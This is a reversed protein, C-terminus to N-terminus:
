AGVRTAEPAMATTPTFFCTREAAPLAFIPAAALTLCSPLRCRVRRQRPAPDDRGNEELSVSSAQRPGTLSGV